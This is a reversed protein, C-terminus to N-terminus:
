TGRGGKCGWGCEDIDKKEYLKEVIYSYRKKLSLINKEFFDM